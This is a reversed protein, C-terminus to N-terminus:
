LFFGELRGDAALRCADLPLGRGSSAHGWLTAADDSRLRLRALREPEIWDVDLIKPEEVPQPKESVLRASVVVRWWPLGAPDRFTGHDIAVVADAEIEYGTEEFVERRAAQALTEGPELAGSPFYWVPGQPTGRDEHVLLARSAHEVIVVITASSPLKLNM